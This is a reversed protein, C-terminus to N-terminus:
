RTIHKQGKNAMDAVAQLLKKENEESIPFMYDFNIERRKGDATPKEQPNYYGYCMGNDLTAYTHICIYSKLVEKTYGSKHWLTVLSNTTPRDEHCYVIEMGVTEGDKTKDEFEVFRNMIKGDFVTKRIEKLRDISLPQSATAPNDTKQNSPMPTITRPTSCAVARAPKQSTPTSCIIVHGTDIGAKLVAAPTDTPTDITPTDTAKPAPTTDTPITDTALAELYEPLGNPAIMPMLLIILDENQSVIANCPNNNCLAAPFLPLMEFYWKANCCVPQGAPRNTGIACQYSVLTVPVPQPYLSLPQGPDAPIAASWHPYRGIKSLGDPDCPYSEAAEFDVLCNSFQPYQEFVARSAILRHADTAVTMQRESDFYICKFQPRDNAKAIKRMYKLIAAPDQSLNKYKPLKAPTFLKPADATITAKEAPTLSDSLTFTALPNITRTRRMLKILEKIDGAVACNIENLWNHPTGEITYCTEGKRENRTITYNNINKM